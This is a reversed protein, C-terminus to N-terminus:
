VVSQGSWWHDRCGDVIGLFRNAPGRERVVQSVALAVVFGRKWRRDVLRLHGALGARQAFRSRSDITAGGVHTCMADSVVRVVEGKRRLRQCLEVDEFGHVFEPDFRETVRMLMCAGSVADVPGGKVGARMRVRGSRFLDIGSWRLGQGDQLVPALAGDEARWAKILKDVCDPHVEADDNLILVREVGNAELVALGRNIAKAFGIGGETRITPVALGTLGTPSDDVVLVPWGQVARLCRDLCERQSHHPILIAFVSSIM